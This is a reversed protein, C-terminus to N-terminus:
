FPLTAAYAFDDDPNWNVEDEDDFPGHIVRHEGMNLLRPNEVHYDRNRCDFSSKKHSIANEYDSCNPDIGTIKVWEVVPDIEAVTHNFRSKLQVMAANKKRVRLEICAVYKDAKQMTLITCSKSVAERGYSGVCIGMKKGIDYLTDTDKALRFSYEGCDIELAKEADTYEITKNGFRWKRDLVVLEDHIERLSGVSKEPRYEKPLYKLMRVSDSFLFNDSNLINVVLSRISEASRGKIAWKMFAVVEPSCNLCISNVANNMPRVSMFCEAVVPATADCYVDIYADVINNMVNVDRIGCKYLWKYLYYAIARKNLRHRISRKQMYKPLWEVEGQSLEVLKHVIRRENGKPFNFSLMDTIDQPKMRSFYNLQNLNYLTIYQGYAEWNRTTWPLADEADDKVRKFEVGCEQHLAELVIRIFDDRMDVTIGPFSSFTYNQLRRKQASYKSQKGERDVGTLMYAQGTKFNLIYRYRLQEQALWYKGYMSRCFYLDSVAEIALKGDEIPWWKLARSVSAPNSGGAHSLPVEGECSSTSEVSIDDYEFRYKLSVKEGCNPCCGKKTVTRAKAKPFGWVSMRNGALCNPCFLIINTTFKDTSAHEKMEKLSSFVGGDKKAIEFGTFVRTRPYEIVFPKVNVM